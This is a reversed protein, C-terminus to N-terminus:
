PEVEKAMAEFAEAIKDAHPKVSNKKPKEDVVVQAEVV